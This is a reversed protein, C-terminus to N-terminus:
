GTEFTEYSTYEIEDPDGDLVSALLEDEWVTWSEPYEDKSIPDEIPGWLDEWAERSEYTWVAAYGGKRVGKIGCLFRYEVLGPLDFLDRREAERVADRFARDTASEALEYHHVSVIVDGGEPNGGARTILTGGLDRPRDAM